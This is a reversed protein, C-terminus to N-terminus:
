TYIRAASLRENGTIVRRTDTAGSLAPETGGSDAARNQRRARCRRYPVRLLNSFVSITLPNLKLEVFMKVTECHGLSANWHNEGHTKRNAFNFLVQIRRLDSCGFSNGFEPATVSLTLGYRNFQRGLIRKNSRSGEYRTKNTFQQSCVLIINFKSRITNKSKKKKQVVCRM